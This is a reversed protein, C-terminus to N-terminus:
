SSASNREANQNQRKLRRRHTALRQWLSLYVTMSVCDDLRWNQVANRPRIEADESAQKEAERAQCPLRSV